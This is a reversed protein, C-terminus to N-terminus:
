EIVLKQLRVNAGETISLVYVGKALGTLNLPIVNDGVTARSSSESLVKGAMDNIVITVDNGTASRYSVSACGNAPNPFVMMAASRASLTTVGAPPTDAFALDDIYLFSGSVPGAVSSASLYIIATDPAASNLYDLSVSFPQWYMIMGILNRNTYSVTDRKGLASDWKTLIVSIFGLDSGSAMYQWNGTLSYPRMAYPFGSLPQVHFINSKDLMGSVAVGPKIGMGSVLQTTLQMYTAGTDGPTGKACTYVSMPNTVSNFNDWGAPVYYGNTDTWNEFGSNPIQAFSATGMILAVLFTYLKKM